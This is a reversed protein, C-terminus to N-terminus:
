SNGSCYSKQRKHILGWFLIAASQAAIRKQPKIIRVLELM